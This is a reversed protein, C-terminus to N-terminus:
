WQGNEVMLTVAAAPTDAFRVLDMTTGPVYEERSFSDIAQRWMDGLLVLPRKGIEGVQLFSWALALESLTGVGGPLVIMGDNNTVLHLVRDALSDYRHIEKVWPNIGTGRFREIRGSAVGIVHGGADAAGQSVASMTGGYGGTAVTFGAEALLQGVTRAQAYAPSDPRPASSGFVSIIGKV